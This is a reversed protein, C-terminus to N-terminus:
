HGAVLEDGPQEGIPLILNLHLHERRHHLPPHVALLRHVALPPHVALPLHVAAVAPVRVHPHVVVLPVAVVADGVAELTPTM